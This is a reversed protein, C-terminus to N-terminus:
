LELKKIFRRGAATKFYREREIALERSLFDEYHVLKWPVKSKTSKNMGSNHQKLRNVLNETHGKYLSGDLESQIVYTYFKM